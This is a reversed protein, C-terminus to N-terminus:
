KEQSIVRVRVEMLSRRMLSDFSVMNMWVFVHAKEERRLFISEILKEDPM